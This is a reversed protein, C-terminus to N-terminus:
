KKSERKEQSKKKRLARRQKVRDMIIKMYYADHELLPSDSIITATFDEHDLLSEIFTDFKLEGKKIPTTKIKDKGRREVGSFHFYFEKSKTVKMVPEYILDTFDESTNLAGDMRCYINGINLVPVVNSVRRVIELVEELTGFVKQRGSTEVGIKVKYNRRKFLDRARRIVKISEELAEKPDLDHYLGIHTVLIRAGLSEATEGAWILNEYSRKRYEEKGLFDMYYPAHAYMYVDLESALERILDVDESIPKHPRLLQVEMAGLELAHIDEIGDKITRGKCSLPIGAPGFRLEM